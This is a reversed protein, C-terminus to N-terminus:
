KTKANKSLFTDLQGKVRIIEQTISPNLIGPGTGTAVFNANNSEFSSLLSSLLDKLIAGLVLPETANNGIFVQNGAGNEGEKGSGIIISPGDIVLAGDPNIQIVGQDVSHGEEDRTGEKIIRISGATAVDSSVLGEENREQASIIRIEKARSIVYASSDVPTSPFEEGIKPLLKPEEYGLNKDGDTKMSIYVRSLDKIFSIDGENIKQSPENNPEAWSRKEKETEGERTNAVTTIKKPDYEFSQGNRILARGAVIDITGAKADLRPKTLPAETKYNANSTGDGTDPRDEGVCILANNSGQIVIDGPRKTFEPVPERTTRRNSPSEVYIRSYDNTSPLTTENPLGPSYIGNHFAPPPLPDKPKKQQTIYEQSRSRDAHTFNIDDAYDPSVVRSMWYGSCVLEGDVASKLDPPSVQTKTVSFSNQLAESIIWVNEGPKVPLSLHQSFLPYFVMARSSAGDTDDLLIAVVSNRPAMKLQKKLSEPLRTKLYPTPANELRNLLSNLFADDKFQVPNDVVELVVAQKIITFNQNLIPLADGGYRIDDM